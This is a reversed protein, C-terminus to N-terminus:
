IVMPMQLLIKNNNLLDYWLIPKQPESLTILVEESDISNLMSIVHSGKLGIEINGGICECSCEEYTKKAFMINESIIKMCLSNISLRLLTTQEDATIMARKVAEMFDDKNVKVEITNKQPIIIRFNPYPQVIRAAVLMADRTKFAINREGIMVDVYNTMNLMPLLADIAKICLSAGIEDEEYDHAEHNYYMVETNTAAVGVDNNGCYVYVGMMSPYLTNTGVFNKAEKLWNFMTQSEVCFTKMDKDFVPTPFDDADEYPISQKGTSHIIECIHEEFALEVNEDKISRLIALLVKPEVCFIFENDHSVINTRKTIAVESDYSSITATNDKITVKVNSLISLGKAKGAMQSGISLADVFSKREIVIKM